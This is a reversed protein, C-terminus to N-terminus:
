TRAEAYAQPMVAASDETDASGAAHRSRMPRINPLVNVPAAQRTSSVSPAM